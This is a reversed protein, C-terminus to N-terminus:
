KNLVQAILDWRDRYETIDWADFSRAPPLPVTLVKNDKHPRGNKGPTKLWVQHAGVYACEFRCKSLWYLVPREAFDGTIKSHRSSKKIEM